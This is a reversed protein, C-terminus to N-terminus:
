GASSKWLRKKEIVEQRAQELRDTKRRTWNKTNWMARQSSAFSDDTDVMRALAEKLRKKQRKQNMEKYTQFKVKFNYLYLYSSQYRDSHISCFHNVKLSNLRNYRNDCLKINREEFNYNSSCIRASSLMTLNTLNRIKLLKFFIIRSLFTPSNTGKRDPCQLYISPDKDEYKLSNPQTSGQQIKM